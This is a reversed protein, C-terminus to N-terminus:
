RRRLAELATQCKVCRIKGLALRAAPIVEGGDICHKGDFDPDTEPQALSRIRDEAARNTKEQQEQAADILETYRDASM